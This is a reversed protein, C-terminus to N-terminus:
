EPDEQSPLLWLVSMCGEQSSNTNSGCVAGRSHKRLANNYQEHM